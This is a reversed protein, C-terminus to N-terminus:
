ATTNTNNDESTTNIETQNIDETLNLDQAMNMDTQNLDMTENNTVTDNIPVVPEEPINDVPEIPEEPNETPPPVDREYDPPPLNDISYEDPFLFEYLFDQVQEVPEYPVYGQQAAFFYGTPAGLLLVVLVLAITLGLHSSKKPEKSDGTANSKANDDKKNKSDENKNDSSIDTPAAPNQAKEKALIEAMSPPRKRTAIYIEHDVDHEAHGSQVLTKKVQEISFGRQLNQKIYDIVAKDIM